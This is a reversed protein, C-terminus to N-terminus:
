SCSFVSSLSLSSSIPVFGTGIVAFLSEDVIRVTDRCSSITYSSLLSSSGIMHYSAGSDIIWSVGSPDSSASLAFEFIGAAGTLSSSSSTDMQAMLRQLSAMEELLSALEGSSIAFSEFLALFSTPPSVDSPTAVYATLRGGSLSSPTVGRGRTFLGQQSPHPTPEQPHGYLDWCTARTHCARGCHDYRLRDHDDSVM